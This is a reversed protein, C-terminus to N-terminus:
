PHTESNAMKESFLDYAMYRQNKVDCSDLIKSYTKNLAYVTLLFSIPGNPSGMQECETQNELISKLYLTIITNKYKETADKLVRAKEREWLQVTGERQM